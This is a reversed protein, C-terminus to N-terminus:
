FEVYGIHIGSKLKIFNLHYACKTSKYVIFGLKVVVLKDGFLWSVRVRRFLVEVVLKLFYKLERLM